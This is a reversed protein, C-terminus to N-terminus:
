NHMCSLGSSTRAARQTHWVARPALTPRSLRALWAAVVLKICATGGIFFTCSAQHVCTLCACLRREDLRGTTGDSPRDYGHVRVRVRADIVACAPGNGPQCGRWRSQRQLQNVHRRRKPPQTAPHCGPLTQAAPSPTLCKPPHKIIGLRALIPHQAPGRPTNTTAPSPPPLSHSTLPSSTSGNSLGQAYPASPAWGCAVGRARSGILELLDIRLRTAKRRPEHHTDRSKPEGM